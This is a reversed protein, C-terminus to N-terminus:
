SATKCEHSVCGLCVSFWDTRGEFVNGSCPARPSEGINVGSLFQLFHSRVTMLLLYSTLAKTKTEVRRALGLASVRLDPPASDARRNAGRPGREPAGCAPRRRRDRSVDWEPGRRSPAFPRDEDKPRARLAIV